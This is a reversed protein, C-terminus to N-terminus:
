PLRKIMTHMKAELGMSEYLKRAAENWSRVNLRLQKLGKSRTWAEAKAMLASGIGRRQAARAVVIDNVHAYDQQVLIEIEEIRRLSVQIFGSPKGSDEAIFLAKDPQGLYSLFYERSRGPRAPNKFYEPEQASHLSDVEAILACFAEYDSPEASRIHIGTSM